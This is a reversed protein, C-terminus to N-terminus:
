VERSEFYNALKNIIHKHAKKQSEFTVGGIHPAIVLNNHTQMYKILIHNELDNRWEGTIVDLGAALLQGKELAEILAQEDIVAGRCTNILIAGKKMKGFANRDILIKNNETLHIHIDLVDSQSLLEELGVQRIWPMDVKLKDYAIINMRFAKGYEAVICGLRGCDLVGLTKYALQHGRFEDRAWKGKRAADAASQLNRTCSFLM